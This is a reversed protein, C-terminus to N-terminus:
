LNYKKADRKLEVNKIDFLKHLTKIDVPFRFGSLHIGDYSIKSVKKNKGKVLFLKDGFFALETGRYNKQINNPYDIFIDHKAILIDGVEINLFDEETDKYSEFIKFNTIM